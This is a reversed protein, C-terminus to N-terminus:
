LLKIQAIQQRHEHREHRKIIFIKKAQTPNLQVTLLIHTEPNINACIHNILVKRLIKTIIVYDAETEPTWYCKQDRSTSPTVAFLPLALFGNINQIAYNYLGNCYLPKFTTKSQQYNRKNKNTKILM